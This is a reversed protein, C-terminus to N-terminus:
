GAAPHANEVLVHLPDSFGRIEDRQCPLVDPELADAAANGAETREM